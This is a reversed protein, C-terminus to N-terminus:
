REMANELTNKRFLSFAKYKNPHPNPPEKFVKSINKQLNYFREDEKLWDVAAKPKGWERAVQKPQKMSAITYFFSDKNEEGTLEVAYFHIRKNTDSKGLSQIKNVKLLTDELHEYKCEGLDTTLFSLKEAIISREFKEMVKEHGPSDEDMTRKFYPISITSKYREMVEIKGKLDISTLKRSIEDDDFFEIRETKIVGHINVEGESRKYYSVGSPVRVEDTRLVYGPIETKGKHSTIGMIPLAVTKNNGANVILGYRNKGKGVVDSSENKVKPVYPYFVRVIDGSNYETM